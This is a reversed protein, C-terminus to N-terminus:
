PMGDGDHERILVLPFKSSDIRGFDKRREM